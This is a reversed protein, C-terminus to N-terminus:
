RDRGRKGLTMYEQRAAQHDVLPCPYDSGVRCSWREQEDVSLLHPEHVLRSPVHSLEPVYQKIYIGDADFKKSQIAPNFIRYGPMADTGTGACWQWNGNNAAVDADILQRMFYAEGDQWRLRLDKVLFSAVVMRIRTHMWGTQNLQRMGADVIPYGTQGSCWAQFLRDYKTGAPRSNPLATNTRFPKSSVSPFAALVQQFFDRWILEDIWVLIGKRSRRESKDLAQLAAHVATRTSLTGFRFHPSLKSTGEVSPVNRTKAYDPATESLFTRLTQRAAQEGARFFLVQPRYGLHESSPWEIRRGTPSSKGLSRPVPPKVLPPAAEHWKAWWRQRFASYRQLPTNSASRIEESEFVVHDKFTRVTVGQQALENQVRRDREVAAPEYDRNWYVLDVKRDKAFRVVEEVHEGRRWSLSVGLRELAGGVEELSALMFSVCADGFLHSKLLPDDFVFLAHVQQCDSLAAALAAHDEIRLDRRFWVLGKM